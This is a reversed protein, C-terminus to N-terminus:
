WFITRFLTAMGNNNWGGWYVTYDYGLFSQYGNTKNQALSGIILSTVGSIAGTLALALTIKSLNTKIWTKM